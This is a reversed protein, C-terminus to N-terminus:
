FNSHKGQAKISILKMKSFNKINKIIVKPMKRWEEEITHNKFITIKFNENMKFIIVQKKLINFFM